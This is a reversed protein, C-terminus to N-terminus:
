DYEKLARQKSTQTHGVVETYIHLISLSVSYKRLDLHTAPTPFSCIMTASMIMGNWLMSLVMTLM